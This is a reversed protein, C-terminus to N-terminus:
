LGLEKLTYKKNEEMGKYMTKERFFPFNISAEKKLKISIYERTDLSSSKIISEIKERFPGIINALYRKETEDLIEEKREFVTEYKVPKEIKVIDLDIGLIRDKLEDTYDDLEKVICGGSNILKKAIVTRKAGNRYTVIDGNKLDAKRFQKEQVLELEDDRFIEGTKDLEYPYQWDDNIKTITFIKGINKCTFGLSDCNIVKVKDGIKFKM